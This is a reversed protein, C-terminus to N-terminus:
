WRSFYLFVSTITSLGGNLIRASIKCNKLLFPMRKKKNAGCRVSNLLLLLLLLLVASTVPTAMVYSFPALTFM